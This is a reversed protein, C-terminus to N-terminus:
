DKKGQGRSAGTVCIMTHQRHQRQQQQQQQQQRLTVIATTTVLLVCVTHSEVAASPMLIAHWRLMTKQILHATEFESEVAWDLDL